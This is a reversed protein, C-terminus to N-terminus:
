ARCFLADWLTEPPYQAKRWKDYNTWYAGSEVSDFISTVWRVGDAVGDRQRLRAATDKANRRIDPDSLCTTIHRALTAAELTPLHDAGVGVGLTEVMAASSFQDYLCPTVITPAGSRLSATTTGIGGHHVVVSCRSFLREHPATDM